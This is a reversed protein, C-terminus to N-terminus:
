LAKLRLISLLLSLMTFDTIYLRYCLLQKLKISHKWVVFWKICRSYYEKLKQVFFRTQPVTPSLLQSSFFIMSYSPTSSVTQGQRYCHFFHSMLTYSLNFIYNICLLLANSFYNRKYFIKKRSSVQVHFITIM